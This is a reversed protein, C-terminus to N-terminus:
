GRRRTELTRVVGIIGHCHQDGVDVALDDVVTTFDAKQTIKAACAATLGPM